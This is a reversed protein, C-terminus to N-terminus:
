TNAITRRVVLSLMIRTVGTVIMSAGVLIGLAWVSSSPWRLYILLGLLLTVIADFLVWAAGPIARMKSFLMIDLVGEILFLVAVALTLSIVGLVPHLILYIGFGLYAVGVLLKWILSGARHTHFAVLLHVVGALVLLWAIFINVALAALMPSGIALVGFIILLVSWIISWASAHKHLEPM